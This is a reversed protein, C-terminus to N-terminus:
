PGSSRGGLGDLYQGIGHSNPCASLYLGLSRPSIPELGTPCLWHQRGPRSDGWVGLGHGRGPSHKRGLRNLLPVVLTGGGIGALASIIGVPPGALWLVQPNVAGQNSQDDKQKFLRYAMFLAFVGFMRALWDGPIVAALQSGAFSGILLGPVLRLAGQLDM